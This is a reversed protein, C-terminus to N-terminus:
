ESLLKTKRTFIRVGAPDVGGHVAASQPGHAHKSAKAGSLFGVLAEFVQKLLALGPERDSKIEGGQHAVVGIGWFRQTFKAFAADRDGREFVHFEQQIADRQVFDGGAHRDIGRCRDDPGHVNGGGFLLTDARILQAAGNLIVDQFFEDGLFFIDEGRVWGHAQDGVGDFEAGMVEGLPVRDTDGAIMDALGTGGGSLLQGEGQSIPQFIGAPCQVRPRSMSWNAGRSEKKKLAWLSKKSSIALYRAARRMQALSIFSVKPAM